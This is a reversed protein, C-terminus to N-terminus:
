AALMGGQKRAEMWGDLDAQLFRWLRRKGEGIPIAPLYGERAWRAVTRANLGGLYGATEECSLYKRTPEATSACLDVVGQVAVPTAGSMTVLNM